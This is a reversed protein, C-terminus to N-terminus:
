GVCTGTTVVIKYNPHSVRPAGYNCNGADDCTGPFSYATGPIVADECLDSAAGPVCSQQPPSYETKGCSRATTNCLNADVGTITPGSTQGCGPATGHATHMTVFATLAVVIQRNFRTFHIRAHM